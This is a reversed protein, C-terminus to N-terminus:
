LCFEYIITSESDNTFRPCMMGVKDIGPYRYYINLDKVSINPEPLFVRSQLKTSYKRLCTKGWIM